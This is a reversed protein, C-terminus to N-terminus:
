LVWHLLWSALIIPLGHVRIRMRLCCLLLCLLHVCGDVGLLIHLWSIFCILSVIWNCVLWQGVLRCHHMWVFKEIWVGVEFFWRHLGGIAVALYSSRIASAVGIAAVKMVVLLLRFISLGKRPFIPLRFFTFQVLRLILYILSWLILLHIKTVRGVLLVVWHQTLVLIASRTVVAIGLKLTRLRAHHLKVITLFLFAVARYWNLVINASGIHQSLLLINVPLVLVTTFPILIIESHGCVAHGAVHVRVIVPVIERRHLLRRIRAHAASTHVIAVNTKLIPVTARHHVILVLVFQKIRFLLRSIWIKLLAISIITTWFQHLRIIIRLCSPLLTIRLKFSIRWNHRVPGILAVCHCILHIHLRTRITM